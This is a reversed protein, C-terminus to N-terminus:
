FNIIKTTGNSNTKGGSGCPLATDYALGKCLSLHVKRYFKSSMNNNGCNALKRQCDNHFAQCINARGLRACTKTSSTCSKQVNRRCKSGDDDTNQSVTLAFIAVLLLVCAFLQAKM